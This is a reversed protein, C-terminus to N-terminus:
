ASVSAATNAMASEESVRKSKQHYRLDPSYMRVVRLMGRVSGKEKVAWPWGQILWM